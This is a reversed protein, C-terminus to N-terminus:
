KKYKIREYMEILESVEDLDYYQNLTYINKVARRYKYSMKETKDVLDFITSFRYESDEKKIDEVVLNIIEKRLIVIAKEYKKTKICYKLDELINKDKEMLIDGMTNLIIAKKM